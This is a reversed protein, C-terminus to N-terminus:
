ITNTQSTAELYAQGQLHANISSAYATTALAGVGCAIAGLSGIFSSVITGLIVMLYAMPAAKVLAFVERFKLAAGMQDTDAFRGLAAPIMFALLISYLFFILGFCATAAYAVYMLTDNSGDTSAPVTLLVSPCIGVIILPLAYVIAIVVMKFGKGLYGGFDTWDTLPVPERHIVRKTIEVGWGAVILSGIIPILPIVAAILIKKIWDQDEFQYSFAKGFDM